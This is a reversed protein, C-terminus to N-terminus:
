MQVDKLLMIELELPAKFDFLIPTDTSMTKNQNNMLFSMFSQDADIMQERTPLAYPELVSVKECLKLQQFELNKLYEKKTSNKSLDAGSEAAAEMAQRIKEDDSKQDILKFIRPKQNEM